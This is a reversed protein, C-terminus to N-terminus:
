YEYWSAVRGHDTAGRGRRLTAMFLDLYVEALQPRMTSLYSLYAAYYKVANQFPHPIADYDSDAVLAKPSCSCQWEMEESLSPVPFMWVNANSGDGDTAWVLPFSTVLFNYSRAYAQLDEWPMYNMAPRMSGWSVALSTVDLVQDIGENTAQIQALAMAFPYKEQNVITRFPSRFPSGPTAGGPVAYGANAQNGYPAKGTALVNICGTMYAVQRRGENIWRTLQPVTILLGLNDHLLTQADNIYWSLQM